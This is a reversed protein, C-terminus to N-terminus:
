PHDATTKLIQGSITSGARLVLRLAWITLVVVKATSGFNNQSVKGLSSVDGAFLAERLAKSRGPM